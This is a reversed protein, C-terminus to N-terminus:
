RPCEASRATVMVSQEMDTSRVTKAFGNRTPGDGGFALSGAFGIRRLRFNLSDADSRTLVARAQTDGGSPTLVRAVVGTSDFAVVFPFPVDGWRADGKNAAEVRYCGSLRTVAVGAVRGQLASTVVAGEAARAAAVAQVPAPPSAAPTATGTVVVQSLRTHDARASMSDAQAAMSKRATAVRKEDAPMDKLADLNSAGSAAAPPVVVTNASREVTRVPQEEKLRTAVQYRSLSDSKAPENVIAHMTPAAVPLAAVRTPAPRQTMYVGVGVLLMAAISARAPTVRLAGWLSSRPIDGTVVSPRILPTPVADLQSVVRSAGAILGRAEAVRASCAPCTAVHAEIRAAEDASLGDDLWAHITGEDPHDYLEDHIM